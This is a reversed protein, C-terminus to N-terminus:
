PCRSCCLSACESRVRASLMVQEPSVALSWVERGGPTGAIGDVVTQLCLELDVDWIKVLGDKGSSVVLVGSQGGAEGSEGRELTRVGTDGARRESIDDDDSRGGHGSLKGTIGNSEPEEKNRAKKNKGLGRSIRLEDEIRGGKGWRRDKEVLARGQRRRIIVLDTVPASHAHIRHLGAGALRDWVIIDGDASGSVLLTSDATCANGQIEVETEGKRQGEAATGGWGSDVWRLATIASRHGYLTSQPTPKQLNSLGKAGPTRELHRRLLASSAALTITEEATPLQWTRISGDSYGVALHTHVLSLALKVAHHPTSSALSSPASPSFKALEVQQAPSWLIVSPGSCTLVYSKPTRCQRSPGSPAFLSIDSHPSTILGFADEHVYRLYAKVMKSHSVLTCALGLGRSHRVPTILVVLELGREQCLARALAHEPLM